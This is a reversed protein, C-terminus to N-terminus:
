STWLFRVGLLLWEHLDGNELTNSFSSGNSTESERVFAGVTFDVFPGIGFHPSIRYDCGLHVHVELGDVGMDSKAGQFMQHEQLHEYGVGVGVWPDVRGRPLLHFSGQLGIRFELGPCM